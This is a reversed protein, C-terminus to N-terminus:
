ATIKNMYILAPADDNSSKEILGRIGWDQPVKKISPSVGLGGATLIRCRKKLPFGGILTEEISEM